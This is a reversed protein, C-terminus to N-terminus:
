QIFISTVGIINDKIFKLETQIHELTFNIKIQHERIIIVYYLVFVTYIFNFFM